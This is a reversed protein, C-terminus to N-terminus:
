WRACDVADNAIALHLLSPPKKDEESSISKALFGDTDYRMMLRMVDIRGQM